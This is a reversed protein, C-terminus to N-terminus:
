IENKSKLLGEILLLLETLTLYLDKHLREKHGVAMWKSGKRIFTKTGDDSILILRNIYM